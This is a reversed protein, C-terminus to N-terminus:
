RPRYAGCNLGDGRAIMDNPCRSRNACSMCRRQGAYKRKEEADRQMSRERDAQLKADVEARIRAEEAQRRMEEQIRAEEARRAAEIKRQRDEEIALNLAEKYDDARGTQLMHIVEDVLYIYEVNMLGNENIEKTCAALRENAAVKRKGWEHYIQLAKPFAERYAAEYHPIQQEMVDIEKKYDAIAQEYAEVDKQYQQERQSKIQEKNKEKILRKYILIGAVIVLLGFYLGRGEPIFILGFLSAAAFGIALMTFFAKLPIDSEIKPLAVYAFRTKNGSPQSQKLELALDKIANKRDNMCDVNVFQDLKSREEELAAIHCLKKITLDKNM